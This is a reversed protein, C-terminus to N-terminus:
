KFLLSLSIRIIERQTPSHILIANQGDLDKVLLFEFLLILTKQAHDINADPIHYIQINTFITLQAARSVKSIEM